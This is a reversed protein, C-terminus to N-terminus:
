KFAERVQRRIQLTVQEQIFPQASDNIFKIVEPSQLVELLDTGGEIYHSSGENKLKTSIAFAASLAQRDDLGLKAMAWRKLPEIPAFKGPQRGNVLQNTYKRGRIVNGVVELSDRWEGTADMDLELFRPVLFLDIVDKLIKEIQDDSLFSTAM